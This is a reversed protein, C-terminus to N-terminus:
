SPAIFMSPAVQSLGNDPSFYKMIQCPDEWLTSFGAHPGSTLM